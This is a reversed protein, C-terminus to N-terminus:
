ETIKVNKTIQVTIVIFDAMSHNLFNKTIDEDTGNTDSICAAESCENKAAYLKLANQM